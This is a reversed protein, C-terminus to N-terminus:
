SRPCRVGCDVRRRRVRRGARASGAGPKLMKRLRSSSGIAVFWILLATFSGIAAGFAANPTEELAFKRMIDSAGFSVGAVAPYLYWWTWRIRRRHEGPESHPAGTVAAVGAVILGVGVFRSAPVTESLLVVGGVLSVLPYAATHIPTARSPGLREVGGVYAARGLGDGVAGGLVFWGLATADITEPWDFMAFIGTVVVVVPLSLILAVVISNEVIGRRFLIGASGFCVAAGAALAISM